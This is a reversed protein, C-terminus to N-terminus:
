RSGNGPTTIEIHGSAARMHATDPDDAFYRKLWPILGKFQHLQAQGDPDRQEEGPKQYMARRHKTNGAPVDQVKGEQADGTHGHHLEGIKEGDTLDLHRHRDQQLVQCRHQDGQIGQQESALRQSPRNQNGDGAGGDAAVQDNASVIKVEKGQVPLPNQATNGAGKGKGPIRNVPLFPHM